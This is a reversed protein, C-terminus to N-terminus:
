VTAEPFCDKCWPMTGIDPIELATGHTRRKCRATWQRNLPDYTQAHLRGQPSRWSPYTYWYRENRKSTSTM